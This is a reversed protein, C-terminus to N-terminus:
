QFELVGDIMYVAGDSYIRPFVGIVNVVNGLADEVQLSDGNDILTISVKEGTEESVGFTVLEGEIGAGPFPYDNLGSQSVSVFYHKMYSKFGSPKSPLMDFNENVAEETSAFAIFREGQLFNFPPSATHFGGAEILQKFASLEEPPNYRIQDKFLSYDLTLAMDEEAALDYATGNYHDSIKQYTAPREPYNNFINSSYIKDEGEFLLYQFSNLTKMVRFDEVETMLRTTVHNNVIGNMTSINMPVWPENDGEIQITQEGYKNPNLNQFLMTKGRVTSNEQLVWDSPLFLNFDVDDSMLPQVRQAQDMMSLFMRYRPNSFAPATISQFMRPVVIDTLGYLTGNACMQKLSVAETDFIIEDGYRSEIEGDSIEEPFVVDGEYVHNDLLYKLPLFNVDLIDDYYDAWFSNFFDQLASNSPAFVNYTERSLTALDAYDPLASEGNYTWESAIKPLDVHYFLYLSDGDGYNETLSADYRFDAFKDYVEKFLDFDNTQGLTEHITELPTLVEDVKHVYGNDAVIAYEEVSANSINFGGNEGQWEKGSYFYGYNDQPNINKTDFLYSSFVPLFREKHYVKRVLPTGQVTNDTYEEIGSTSKTRFKYYLGEDNLNDEDLASIGEPRYNALKQKDLAYYVLHYGIVKQLVDDPVEDVSGYDNDSLFKNFAEDNPAVVTIIGRGELVDRFGAKDVAELFLDYEGADVLVEYTNGKLWDPTEYYKDLEKECGSLALLIFVSGVLISRVFYNKM